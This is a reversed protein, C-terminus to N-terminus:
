GFLIYLLFVFPRASLIHLFSGLLSVQYRCNTLNEQLIVFVLAFDGWLIELLIYPTM